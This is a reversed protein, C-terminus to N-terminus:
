PKILEKLEAQFYELDKRKLQCLRAESLSPLGLLPLYSQFVHRYDYRKSFEISEKKLQEILKSDKILNIIINTYKDIDDEIVAHKYNVIDLSRFGISTGLIASGSAMAEITKMSSGSGSRLPVLVIDVSKYLALLTEKEVKGLSIFNAIKEPPSCNGATIFTLNNEDKMMSAIHRIDKVATKNPNHAGGVFFCLPGDPLIIGSKKLYAKPDEPFEQGWYICDTPNVIINCQIGQKLFAKSDQDTVAVVHNAKKLANVELYRVAKKIISSHNIHSSLFDHDTIILNKHYKSCESALIRGWFPYELIIADAWQVLESISRKVEPLLHPEIFRNLYVTENDMKSKQNLNRSGLDIAKRYVKAFFTDSYVAVSEFSINGKKLSHKNWRQMVRIEEFSNSLIQLMQNVRIAAGSEPNLLDGFPYFLALKKITNKSKIMSVVM